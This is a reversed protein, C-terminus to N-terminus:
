KKIPEIPAQDQAAFRSRVVQVGCVSNMLTDVFGPIEPLGPVLMERVGKYAGSAIIYIAAWLTKSQYWKKAEMPGEQLNLKKAIQNGAFKAFFTEFMIEEERFASM